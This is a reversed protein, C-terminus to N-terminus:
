SSMRARHHAQVGRWGSVDLGFERALAANSPAYLAALRDLVDAPPARRDRTTNLLRYGRRLGRYLMGRPLHARLRINARQLLRSRPAYSENEGSFEYGDYFQEDVGVWRCVRRCVAAPDATLTDFTLVMMRDDGLRVRWDRLVDIYHANAVARAALENGGFDDAGTQSAALFRAFGMKAPIYNWNNRFYEHISRLQDVPDRLVFICKPRGPLDPIQELAARQYIYGPTSDLRVEPAAGGPPAFRAAYSALDAGPWSQPGHLHSDRDVFYRAEKEEAGGFAPHAVLWRHLASTGAKPVGAVFLNPLTRM